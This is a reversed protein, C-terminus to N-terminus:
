RLVMKRRTLYCSHRSNTVATTCFKSTAINERMSQHDTDNLVQTVKAKKASEKSADSAQKLHELSKVPARKADVYEQNRVDERSPPKFAGGLKAKFTKIKAAGRAGVQLIGETIYQVQRTELQAWQFCKRVALVVPLHAYDIFRATARNNAEVICTTTPKKYFDEIEEFLHHSRMAPFILLGHLPNTWWKVWNRAGPFKKEVTRVAEHFDDMTEAREMQTALVQFDSQLSQPIVHGNHSCHKVSQKWHFKCGKMRHCAVRASV